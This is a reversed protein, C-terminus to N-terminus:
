EIPLIAHDLSHSVAQEGLSAAYIRHVAADFPTHQLAALLQGTRMHLSRRQLVEDKDEESRSISTEDKVYTIGITGVIRDQNGDLCIIFRNDDKSIFLLETPLIQHESKFYNIAANEIVADLGDLLDALDSTNGFNEATLFSTSGDIFDSELAGIILYQSERYTDFM